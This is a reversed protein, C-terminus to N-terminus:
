STCITERGDRESHFYPVFSHARIWNVPANHYYVIYEGKHLAMSGKCQTLKTIIENHLPSAIKPLANNLRLKTETYEITAFFFDRAAANGGITNRQLYGRRISYILM